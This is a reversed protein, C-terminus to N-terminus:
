FFNPVYGFSGGLKAMTLSNDSGSKNSVMYNFLNSLGKKGKSMNFLIYLEDNYNPSNKDLMGESNAKELWKNVDDETVVQDPKVNFIRRANMLYSHVNDQQPDTVYDYFAGVEEEEQGSKGKIIEDYSKFNEQIVRNHVPYVFKQMPDTLFTSYEHTETITKERPNKKLSEKLIVQPNKGEVYMGMVSPDDEIVQQYMPAPYSKTRQQITPLIKNMWAKYDETEELNASEPNDFLKARNQYWNTLFAQAENQDVPVCSQLQENWTTGEPCNTQGGNDYRKPMTPIFKSIASNVRERMTPPVVPEAPYRLEMDREPLDVLPAKFMPMYPMRISSEMTKLREGEALKQNELDKLGAELERTKGVYRYYDIRSRPDSKASQDFDSIKFALRVGNDANYFKGAEYNNPNGNPGAYIATHHPRLIRPSGATTYDSVAMDVLLGVDGPQRQSPNIKEFPLQGSDSMNAFAINGGVIPVDYAGAKQYAFCGYPTCYLERGPFAEYKWDDYASEWRAVNYRGQNPLVDKIGQPLNQLNKQLEAPNRSNVFRKWAKGDATKFDEETENSDRNYIEYKDDAKDLAKSAPIIRSRVANVRRQEKLLAEQAATYKAELEPYQQKALELEQLAQQIQVESNVARELSEPTFRSPDSVNSYQSLEEFSVCRQATEIWVSGEPCDVAGGNAKKKIRREQALMEKTPEKGSGRNARINDWLGRQSYSGDARKIMEGGENYFVGGYKAQECPVCVKQTVPLGQVFIQQTKYCPCWNDYNDQYIDTPTAKRHEGPYTKDFYNQFNELDEDDYQFFNNFLEKSKEDWVGDKPYYQKQEFDKPIDFGPSDKSPYQNKFNKFEESEKFKQYEESEKDIRIKEGTEEDIIWPGKYNKEYLKNLKEQRYLQYEEVNRKRELKNLFDQYTDYMPNYTDFVQQQTPVNESFPICERTYHHWYYGPPCPDDNIQGGEEKAFNRAFNAKKVMASSYKEKNALIHRAAEQVGMGMRTAQAKFTGKKSPDIHIGGEKYANYYQDFSEEQPQAQDMGPVFQSLQQAQQNLMLQKLEEKMQKEQAIQAQRKTFNTLVENLTWKQNDSTNM